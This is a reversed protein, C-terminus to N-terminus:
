CLQLKQANPISYGTGPFMELISVGKKILLELNVVENPPVYGM